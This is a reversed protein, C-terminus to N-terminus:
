ILGMVLETLKSRRTMLDIQDRGADLNGQQGLRFRFEEINKSCLEPLPKLRPMPMVASIVQGSTCRSHVSRKEPIRMWSEMRPIQDYGYQKLLAQIVSVKVPSHPSRDALYKNVTSRDPWAGIGMAATHEWPFLKGPDQKRLPAIDSHGVM